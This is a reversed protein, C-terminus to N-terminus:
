RRERMVASVDAMVRVADIVAPVLKDRMEVNLARLEAAHQDSVRRLEQELSDARRVERRYAGLGFWAGGAAIAGVAGYQLLTTDVGGPPDGAAALLLVLHAVALGTVM